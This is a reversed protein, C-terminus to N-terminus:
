LHTTCKPNFMSTRAWGCLGWAYCQDDLGVDILNGILVVLVLLAPPLKLFRVLCLKQLLDATLGPVGEVRV